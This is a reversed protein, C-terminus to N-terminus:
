FEKTKGYNWHFALYLNLTSSLFYSLFSSKMTFQNTKTVIGFLHCLWVPGYFIRSFLQDIFLHSLIVLIRPLLIVSLFCCIFLVICHRPIRFGRCLKSLPSGCWYSFRSGIDSPMFHNSKYSHNFLLQATSLINTFHEIYLLINTFHLIYM